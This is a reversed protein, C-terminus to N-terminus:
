ETDSEKGLNYCGVENKVLEDFTDNYELYSGDTWHSAGIMSIIVKNEEHILYLIKLVAEISPKYEDEKMGHALGQRVADELGKNYGNKYAQETAAHVDM